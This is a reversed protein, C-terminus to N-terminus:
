FKRRSTGVRFTSKQRLSSADMGAKDVASQLSQHVALTLATLEDNAIDGPNELFFYWFSGKWVYGGIFALIAVPMLWGFTGFVWNVFFIGISYTGLANLFSVAFAIAALIGIMRWNPVHKTYLSWSLSLDKGSPGIQVAIAGGPNRVVLYNKKTFKSAFEVKEVMVMPIDRIKIAEMFNQEVEEAKSAEGSILDAWGDKWGGLDELTPIAPAPPPTPPPPPPPPYNVPKQPPMEQPRYGQPPGGSPPTGQWGPEQPPLPPPGQVPTPFVPASASQQSSPLVEAAQAEQSMPEPPQAAPPPGAPPPAAQALPKGCTQCYLNKAPNPTQCNQCIITQAEM